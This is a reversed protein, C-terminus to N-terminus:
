VGHNVECGRERAGAAKVVVEVTRREVKAETDRTASAVRRADEETSWCSANETEPVWTVLGPNPGCYPGSGIVPYQVGALYDKHTHIEGHSQWMFERTVFYRTETKMVTERACKQRM